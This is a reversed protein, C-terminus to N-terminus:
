YNEGKNIWKQILVVITVIVAILALIILTIFWLKIAVWLIFLWLPALVIIFVIAVALNTRGEKTRLLERFWEKLQMWKIRFFRNM